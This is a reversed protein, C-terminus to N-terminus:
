QVIIAATAGSLDEEVEYTGAADFRYFQTLGGTITVGDLGGVEVSYTGDDGARFEVTGGAPITVEAQDFSGAGLQEAGGSFTLTVDGPGNALVPPVGPDEGDEGDTGDQGDGDGEDGDSSDPAGAATEESTSPVDSDDSCGATAFALLVLALHLAPVRTM